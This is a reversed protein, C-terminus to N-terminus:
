FGRGTTRWSTIFTDLLEHLQGIRAEGMTSYKPDIIEVKSEFYDAQVSQMAINFAREARTIVPGSQVDNLQMDQIM